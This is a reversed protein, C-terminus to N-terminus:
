EYFRQNNEVSVMVIIFWGLTKHYLRDRGKKYEFTNVLHEKNERFKRQNINSSICDKVQLLTVGTYKKM